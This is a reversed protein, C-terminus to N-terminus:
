ALYISQIQLYSTIPLMGDKWTPHVSELETIQEVRTLRDFQSIGVLKSYNTADNRSVQQILKNPLVSSKYDDTGLDYSPNLGM